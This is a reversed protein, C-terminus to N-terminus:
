GVSWADEASEFVPDVPSSDRFMWYFVTPTVLLYFVTPTVLVYFATPTVLLQLWRWSQRGPYLFKRRPYDDNNGMLTLGYSFEM